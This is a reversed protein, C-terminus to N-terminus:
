GVLLSHYAFLVMSNLVAILKLPRRVTKVEDFLFSELIVLNIMVLM